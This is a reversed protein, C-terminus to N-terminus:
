SAVNKNVKGKISYNKILIKNYFMQNKTLFNKAKSTYKRMIKVKSKNLSGKKPNSKYKWKNNQLVEMAKNDWKWRNKDKAGEAM